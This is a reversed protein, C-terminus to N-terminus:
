SLHISRTSENIFNIDLKHYEEIFSMAVQPWEIFILADQDLYDEFGIDYLEVPANIRYLDFHFVKKNTGQYENVLGFTPSSIEDVVGLERAIASILTTKGSGMPADLLIVNKDLHNIVERAAFNIKDLTYTYNM